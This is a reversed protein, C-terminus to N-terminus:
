LKSKVRTKLHLKYYQNELINIISQNHQECLTTIGIVMKCNQRFTETQKNNWQQKIQLIKFYYNSYDFM